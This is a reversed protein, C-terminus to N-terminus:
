NLLLCFLFFGVVLFPIPIKQKKCCRRRAAVAGLILWNQRKPGAEFVSHSWLAASISTAPRPPDSEGLAQPWSEARGFRTREAGLGERRKGLGIRPEPIQAIIRAVAEDPDLREIENEARDDDARGNSRVTVEALDPHIEIREQGVPGRMLYRVLRETAGPDEPEITVPQPDLIRHAEM